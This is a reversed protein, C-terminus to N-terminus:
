YFVACALGFVSGFVHIIMSGGDDLTYFIYKLIAANLAYFWVQLTAVCWLQFITCKGLIAGFCILVSAAAFDSEILKEVTLPLKEWVHIEPSAIYYQMVHFWFGEFLIGIQICWCGILYTFGISCWSHNKLFVLFFGFGIFIM